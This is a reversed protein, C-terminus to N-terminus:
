PKMAQLQVTTPFILLINHTIQILQITPLQFSNHHHQLMVLAISLSVDYRIYCNYDESKGVKSPMDCTQFAAITSSLCKRCGQPSLDPRCQAQFYLTQFESITAEKTAYKKFGISFNAAEDAVKNMTKIALLTFKTPNFVNVLSCSSSPSSLGAISFFSNNSYRVMCDKKRIDVENSMSCGAPHSTSSSNYGITNTVCQSCLQAPVDGKCMFLGYVTNSSNNKDAVKASYFEKNASANSSLYSLLTKLNLQFVSNLTTKNYDDNCYMSFSDDDWAKTTTVFNIFCVLIFHFFPKFSAM